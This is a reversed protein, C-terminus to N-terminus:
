SNKLLRLVTSEAINSACLLVVNNQGACKGSVKYLAALALAASGEVIQHERFAMIRFAAEIEAESCSVVEDVVQQALPFTISDHDMGGSVGDALTPLHDVDIVKGAKLSAALAASNDAAVGWVKTNGSFHKIVSGVGSILGGGGMAIFINDIPKDQMDDLIELGITGQGAIVEPDNYPSVYVYGKREALDIAHLEAEGTEDGFLIVNAGLSRIRELKVPSVTTPLVIVFNKEETNAEATQLAANGAAYACAIGHNGSSATILRLHRSSSNELLYRLKNTAGRLKFSGTLQFNEAKFYVSSDTDGSAQNAPILPTHYIGSGIRNAAAEAAGAIQAVSFTDTGTM